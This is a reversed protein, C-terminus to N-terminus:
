PASISRRARRAPIAAAFKPDTIDPNTSSPRSSRRSQGPEPDAVDGQGRRSMQPGLAAVYARDSSWRAPTPRPRPRTTNAPPRRRTTSSSSRSRTARCRTSPTRRTSPSSARRQRYARRERRRRRHLLSQHRSQAGQRRRIIANRRPECRDRGAARGQLDLPTFDDVLVGSLQMVGTHASARRGRIPALRTGPHPESSCRLARASVFEELASELAAFDAETLPLSLAMFGRKPMTYIGHPSCTTSCCSACM